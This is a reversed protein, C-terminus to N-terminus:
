KTAMRMEIAKITKEIEKFRKSDLDCRNLQKRLFELEKGRGTRRLGKLAIWFNNDLEHLLIPNVKEKRLFKVGALLLTAKEDTYSPDILIEELKQLDIDPNSESLVFGIRDRVLRSNTKKFVDLLINGDYKVKTRSLQSILVEQAIPYDVNPIWRLLVDVAEKPLPGYKQTLYQLDNDDVSMGITKLEVLLENKTRLHSFDEKKIEYGLNRLEDIVPKVAERYKQVRENIDM